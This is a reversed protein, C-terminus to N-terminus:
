VTSPGEPSLSGEAHAVFADGEGVGSQVDVLYIGERKIKIFCV